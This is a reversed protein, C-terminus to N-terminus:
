SLVDQPQLPKLIDELIQERDGPRFNKPDPLPNEFNSPGQYDSYKALEALPTRGPYAKGKIVWTPFGAKLGSKQEIETFATQCQSTLSGRRTGEVKEACEVYPLSEFAEAGFLELQDYVHPAWYAGYLKAGQAKLHQALAIESEGSPQTLQFGEENEEPTETVQSVTRSPHLSSNHTAIAEQGFLILGVAILGGSIPMLWQSYLYRQM